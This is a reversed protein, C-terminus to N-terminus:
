ECDMVILLKGSVRNKEAAAGMKQFDNEVRLGKM